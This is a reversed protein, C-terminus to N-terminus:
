TGSPDPTNGTGQDELHFQDRWRKRPDDDNDDDDDYEQINLRTEHEKIRLVVKVGEDGGRILIMMTM